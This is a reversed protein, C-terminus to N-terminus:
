RTPEFPQAAEVKLLASGGSPAVWRGAFPRDGAAGFSFTIDAPGSVISNRLFFQGARFVGIGDRNDNDWDGIVPLDGPLGFTFLHHLTATGSFFRNTLLFQATAPRFVGPSHRGDGNWDGAIPIDGPQAFPMYITVDAFGGNLANRLYFTRNGPRYVGVSDRGNGDWDGVVPTDGVNLSGFGFNYATTPIGSVLTAPQDSLTFFATSPRYFGLTDLNDGNWDGALAVDTVLGYVFTFNADGTTNSTRLYLFSNSPRKAGVTDGPPVPPSFRFWALSPDHDSVQQTCGALAKDCFEANVHVTQYRIQAGALLGNSVVIHDLAQSNGEFIYGYRDNENAITTNLITMPPTTGILTQLPASFQFDNLDGAVIVNAAAQCSLVSNVFNRVVTAQQIRQAESTLVPPQVFGFLPNDGGKSNFHNNVIFVTRGNVTFQAILPKRSSAFAANTPDIRGPNLQLSPTGATCNVSNADDFDGAGGPATAPVIGRDTRYLIGQRINGNPAGGDTNGPGPDIQLYAYTPGGALTIANILNTYTLDAATIGTGTGNNDQIEQVLVFDPSRLNTVIQAARANFEAAAANGPLNEVNYSAVTVQDVGTAIDDATQPTVAGSTNTTLAATLNIEYNDFRYDVIGVAANTIATGVNLAPNNPVGAVGDDLQLREPNFDATKVTIGGRTNRGSHYSATGGDGLVWIEGFSNTPGVVVANNVCVRMGELSEYFDVGDTGVDFTGSTEINGTGDDNIVATPPVRNTTGCAGPNGIVIPAPLPNGSSIVNITPSVIETITLNDTDPRFEDVTGSVEVLDGVSVTPATGTFVLIGESTAPDADISADPEQMFFGNISSGSNNERLGTVIGRIGTVTQNDLPSLHSTAQIDRIRLVGPTGPNGLAVRDSRFKQHRAEPLDKSIIGDNYWITDGNDSVLNLITSATIPDGTLEALAEPNLNVLAGSHQVPADDPSGTWTYLAFNGTGDPAGAVIV